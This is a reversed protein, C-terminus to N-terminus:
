PPSAGADARARRLYAFVRPSAALENAVHHTAYDLVENEDVFTGEPWGWDIQVVEAGDLGRLGLRYTQRVKGTDENVALAIKAVLDHPEAPTSVVKFGALGLAKTMSARLDQPVRHDRARAIHVPDRTEIIPDEAILIARGEVDVPIRHVPPVPKLNGTLINGGDCAALSAAVALAIWIRTM